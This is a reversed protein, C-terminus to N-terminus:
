NDNYIDSLSTKRAKDVYGENDLEEIKPPIINQDSMYLMYAKMGIFFCYAALGLGIAAVIWM